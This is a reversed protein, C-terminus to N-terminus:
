PEERELADILADEAAARASLVAEVKSTAVWADFVQARTKPRCIESGHEHIWRYDRLGKFSLGGDFVQAIAVIPDSCNRCNLGANVPPNIPYISM